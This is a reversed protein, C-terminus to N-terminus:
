YVPSCPGCTQAGDIPICAGSMFECEDSALFVAAMAVGEPRGSKGSPVLAQLTKELDSGEQVTDTITLGPLIANCRINYKCYEVAISRTFSVVAAKSAGYATQKPMGTISAVSGVNIISGKRQQM